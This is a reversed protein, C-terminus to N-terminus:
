AGWLWRAYFPAVFVYLVGAVCLFPGFSVGYRAGTRLDPVRREPPDAHPPDADEVDWFGPASADVLVERGFLAALLLSLIAVLAALLMVVPLAYGGFWAGLAGFLMLDGGGIGRRGTLLEYVFAVVFLSGWGTSFGVVAAPVSGAFVVTRWVPTAPYWWSFVLGLLALSVTLVHPILAHVADIWAIQLLLILMFSLFVWALLLEGGPVEWMRWLSLGGAVYVFALASLLGGLAEVVPYRWSIRAGCSACRGRLFIWSIVPINQWVRIRSRCCPTTSPPSVVSGGQPLRAIVVNSFSGWLLGWFAALVLWFVAGMEWGGLPRAWMEAVVDNM